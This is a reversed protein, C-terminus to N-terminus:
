PVRAPRGRAPRVEVGTRHLAKRVTDANVDFMAAVKVTSLGNSYLEAAEAVQRDSLKRVQPRRRIDNRKLHDLVTTRHIGFRDVLEPVTAGAVYADVLARVEAPDLRRQRQLNRASQAINRHIEHDAHVAIGPLDLNWLQATLDV